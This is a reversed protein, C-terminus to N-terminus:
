FHFSNLHLKTKFTHKGLLTSGEQCNGWAGLKPPENTMSFRSGPYLYPAGLYHKGWTAFFKGLAGFFYPEFIGLSNSSHKISSIQRKSQRWNYITPWWPWFVFLYSYYWIDARKREFISLSSYRWCVFIFPHISLMLLDVVSCNNTIFVVSADLDSRGSWLPIFVPLLLIFLREVIFFFCSIKIKM